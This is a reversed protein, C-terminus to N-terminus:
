VSWMSHSEALLVSACFLVAPQGPSLALMYLGPPESEKGLLKCVLDFIRKGEWVILFM